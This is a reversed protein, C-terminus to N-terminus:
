EDRDGLRAGESPGGCLQVDGLWRQPPLDVIELRLQTDSEELTRAAPDTDGARRFTEQGSAALSARVARGPWKTM